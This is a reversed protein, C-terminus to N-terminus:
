SPFPPPSTPPPCVSAQTFSRRALPPSLSAVQSTSPFVSLRSGFDGPTQAIGPPPSHSPSIVSPASDERWPLLQAGPVDEMGGAPLAENPPPTPPHARSCRAPHYILFYWPTASMSSPLLILRFQLKHPIFAMHSCTFLPESREMWVYPVKLKSSLSKCFETYEVRAISSYFVVVVNTDKRHSADEVTIPIKMELALAQAAAKAADCRDIDQKLAIELVLSDRVAIASQSHHALVRGLRFVCTGRTNLGTEGVWVHYPPILEACCKQFEANGVRFISTSAVDSFEVEVAAVPPTTVQNYKRQQAESM